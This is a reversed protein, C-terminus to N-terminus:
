MILDYCSHPRLVYYKTADRVLLKSVDPFRRGVIFVKRVLTWDTNMFQLFTQVFNIEIMLTTALVASFCEWIEYRM